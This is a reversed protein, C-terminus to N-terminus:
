PRVTLNWEGFGSPFGHESEGETRRSRPLREGSSAEAMAKAGATGDVFILRLEGPLAPETEEGTIRALAIYGDAVRKPKKTLEFHFDVYNYKLQGSRIAVGSKSAKITTKLGEFYPFATEAPYAEFLEKTKVDEVPVIFKRVDIRDGQGSAASVMSIPHIEFSHNPNTTDPTFDNDGGQIQSESPHEFWLRWAGSVRITGQQSSPNQENASAATKVFALAEDAM